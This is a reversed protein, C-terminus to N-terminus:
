SDISDGGEEDEMVSEDNGVGKLIPSADSGPISILDRGYSVTFSTDWLFGLLSPCSKM